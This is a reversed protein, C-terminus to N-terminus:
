FHVFVENCQCPRKEKLAGIFYTHNNGESNMSNNWCIEGHHTILNLNYSNSCSTKLYFFWSPPVKIICAYM